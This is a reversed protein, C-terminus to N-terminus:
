SGRSGSGSRGDKLPLTGGGGGGGGSSQQLTAVVQELVTEGELHGGHRLLQLSLQEARQALAIVGEVAQSLQARPRLLMAACHILQQAAHFAVQGSVGFVPDGVAQLADERAGVLAVQEELLGGEQHVAHLEDIM